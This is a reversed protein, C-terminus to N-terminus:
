EDMNLLKRQMSNIERGHNAKMTEMEKRMGTRMDEM